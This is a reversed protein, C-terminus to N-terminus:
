AKKAPGWEGAERLVLDLCQQEARGHGFPDFRQALAEELLVVLVHVEDPVVLEHLHSPALTAILHTFQWVELTQHLRTSFAPLVCAPPKIM